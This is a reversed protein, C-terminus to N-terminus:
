RINRPHFSLIQERLYSKDMHAYIETTQISEHGLMQQIVRLNAGGELLHTAFSHRFTHPSITKQIGAMAAQDRIIRFIMSRTLGAGRRNLFVFDEHGKQVTLQSRDMLWLNIEKIARGSIPVLRQKSGKGDVLIYEQEFYCHSLKLQVLETVRLGCSYLTELMAKNRQGEKISLDIGSLIADIESLSLVQPLYKGLKPSDVLETPDEKLYDEILLFKYFAKIGSLIRAQSRAHIGVDRLQCLFDELEKTKLSLLDNTDGVYDILKHLDDLYASVTNPALSKELKLFARYKKLWDQTTEMRRRTFLFIKEVKAAYNPQSKKKNPYMGM